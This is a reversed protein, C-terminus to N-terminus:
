ISIPASSANLLAWYLVTVKRALEVCSVQDTTHVSCTQTTLLFTWQILSVTTLPCHPHLIPANSENDYGVWFCCVINIELMHYM